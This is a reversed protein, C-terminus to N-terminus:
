VYINNLEHSRLFEGLSSRSKPYTVRAQSSPYLTSACLTMRANDIGTKFFIKSLFLYACGSIWYGLHLGLIHCGPKGGGHGLKALDPGHPALGVEVEGGGSTKDVHGEGAGDTIRTSGERRVGRWRRRRAVM